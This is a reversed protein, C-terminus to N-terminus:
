RPHHRKQGQSLLKRVVVRGHRVFSPVCRDADATQQQARFLLGGVSFRHCGLKQNPQPPPFSFGRAPRAIPRTTLTRPSRLGRSSLYGM